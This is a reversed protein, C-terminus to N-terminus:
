EEVFSLAVAGPGAHTGVVSGIDTQIIETPSYHKEIWAKFTALNEPANTHGIIVRKGNLTQKSDHILRAVEIFAKKSGRAKSATDVLGDSITLIPKVKLVEGITAASAKLRGGKKLYKLTDVIFYLRCHRKMAEIESVIKTRSKGAKVLEVAKLVTHMSTISITETDVLSIKDSKLQNQAIFASQYTGSLKSGIFIGVVEDGSDLVKKFVTAFEDPNVQATSPLEETESLKKYFEDKTIDVGDVYEKDGFIVKLPVVIIKHKKVIDAPLDCTTDTIIRIAM